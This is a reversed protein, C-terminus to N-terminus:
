FNFWVGLWAFVWPFYLLWRGVGAEGDAEGQGSEKRLCRRAEAAEGAGSAGEHDAAAGGCAGGAQGERRQEDAM